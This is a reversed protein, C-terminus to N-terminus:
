TVTVTVTFGIDGVAAQTKYEVTYDTDLTLPKAAGKATVTVTGKAPQVTEDYALVKLSNRDVAITVENQCFDCIGTGDQAFTYTCPETGEAACLPCEWSHTTTGANPTYTRGPHETCAAVVVRRADKVDAEPIPTGTQDFYACGPALLAAFNGDATRIAAPLGFYTGASLQVKAGSAIDLAYASADISTGSDTIRLSGGSQVEVGTGKASFTGRLELDGSKFVRIACSGTGTFTFEKTDIMYLGTVDYPALYTVNENLNLIQDSTYDDSQVAAGLDDIQDLLSVCPSLDVQQQEDATLAEYLAYIESLQAQVQESNAASIRRPLKDILDEIPCLQCVFTCPAGPDGPAYGCTDDHAHPCSLAQTVCGSDETCIHACSVSGAAEPADASDSYCQDTHEHVCVTETTYCGEDHTHTCAQEQVPSAYGCTDTHAAHHPCLGDGTEAEAALAWVPFLNLCLALTIILSLVRRKM